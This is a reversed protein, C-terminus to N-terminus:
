PGERGTVPIDKKHYLAKMDLLGLAYQMFKFNGRGRERKGTAGVQLM